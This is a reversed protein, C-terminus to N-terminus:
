SDASNFALAYENKKEKLYTHLLISFNDGIRACGTWSSLTM